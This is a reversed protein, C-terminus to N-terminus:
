LIEEFFEDISKTYGEPDSHYAVGHAAGKVAVLKKKEAACAEFNRVSMDYPVFSDTDGHIFIVPVKCQKMAEIPSTEEIDFKGFFIGGLRVCPYLLNSPLKMDRMTKKIIERPSTYGCDAIVGIVNEPLEARGAAMMVTAAGMSVGTLIVKAEPDINKIVYEIWSLCDRSENIGFTVVEGESRGCARHDVILASRGQRRARLVWCSLDRDANGRYGHHMIEIPAGVKYEFFKGRLRLGDFSVTEVDTYSLEKVERFWEGMKDRFPAFGEIVPASIKNNENTRSKDSAHFTMNFAVYSTILVSVAIVALAVAGCLVWGLEPM